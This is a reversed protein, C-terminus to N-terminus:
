QEVSPALAMVQPITLPQRTTVLATPQVEGCTQAGAVPMHAQGVTAAQWAPAPDYQSAEPVVRTVQAVTFPQMWDEEFPHALPSVQAFVLKGPPAQWHGVGGM